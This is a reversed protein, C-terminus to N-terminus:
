WIGPELNLLRAAEDFEELMAAFLPGHDAM